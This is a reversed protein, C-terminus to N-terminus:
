RGRPVARLAVGAACSPDVGSTMPTGRMLRSPRCPTAYGLACSVHQKDAPRASRSRSTQYRPLDSTAYTAPHQETSSSKCRHEDATYTPPAPASTHHSPKAANHTTNRPTTKTPPKTAADSAHQNLTTPSSPPCPERPNPPLRTTNKQLLISPPVQNPLRPQVGALLSNLPNPM